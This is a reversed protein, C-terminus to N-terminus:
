IYNILKGLIKKNNNKNPYNNNINKDKINTKIDNDNASDIEITYDEQEKSKANSIFKDNFPIFPKNQRSENEKAKKPPDWIIFLEKKQKM